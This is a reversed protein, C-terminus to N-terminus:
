RRRRPTRDRCVPETRARAQWEILEDILGPLRAENARAEAAKEVIEKLERATAEIDWGLAGGTMSSAELLRSQCFTLVADVERALGALYIALAGPEELQHEALVVTLRRIEFRVSTLSRALVDMRKQIQDISLPKTEM